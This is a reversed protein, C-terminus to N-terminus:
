TKIFQAKQCIKAENQMLFHGSRFALKWACKSGWWASWRLLYGQIMATTVANAKMAKVKELARRCSRPHMLATVQPKAKETPQSVPFNVGLYYFWFGRNPADQGFIMFVFHENINKIFEAKTKIIELWGADLDPSKGLSRYKVFCFKLQRLLTFLRRKAKRYQSQSKALIVIDDVFRRYFVGRSQFALDLPTLYLAGLFPSLSSRLPIGKEPIFVKGGDDIAHNVIAELYNMVRTDHFQQALQAMLLKRDISAYYKKIDTRIVYHYDGSALAAKIAKTAGKIASPGQTSICTNTLIHPFTSRLIQFLCHIRLRDPYNWVTITEDCFRYRRMPSFRYNGAIFKAMWDNLLTNTQTIFHWWGASKSSRARNIQRCRQCGINAVHTLQSVRWGVSLIGKNMM